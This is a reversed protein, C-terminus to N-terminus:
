TGGLFALIAAIFLVPLLGYILLKGIVEGERGELGVTSCGIIVKAPALISGLSGGATQAALILPVSLGLLEATRMQLVGFLVNSNSNSGTIFAGLVGIFPSVVPFLREGFSRSLGEALLRTMGSHSMIVAMGVMSLVGLSSTVASRGVREAIRQAAGPHYYGSLWYITFAILSAYLLIAGPHGFISIPSSTEAPNVTGLATQLEPFNLSVHLQNFFARVPQILNLCFALTVLVVYVSLSVPLTRRRGDSAPPVAPHLNVPQAPHSPNSRGLQTWGIGVLLGAMAGGTAGLTWVGHTALVYQVGGMVVALLFVVPLNRRLGDWGGAVYAVVLGCVLGAAGLLLAANPALMDAPLKTVALLSIFATAMSGFNVAWAHGVSAMIVSQVPTFGLGVLLPATVAVPVGLGGLGQLFSVFVWGLLLGQLTRDHTLRPLSEGIVKVAGAEDAVHYLLLAMWIVYLVNLSLMVAKVQTYAILRAGAGFIIMALLISVFWSAAGARSGSWRFGVMLALIVLVPTLALLWNLLTLQM